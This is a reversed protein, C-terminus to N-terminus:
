SWTDTEPVYTIVEAKESISVRRTHGVNAMRTATREAGRIAGGLLSLALCLLWLLSLFHAHFDNLHM